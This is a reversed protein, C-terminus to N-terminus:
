PTVEIPRVFSGDSRALGAAILREVVEDSIRRAGFRWGGPRRVFPALRLLKLYFREYECLPRM